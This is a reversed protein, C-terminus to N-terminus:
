ASAPKEMLFWTTDDQPFPGRHYAFGYDVLRLDSFRDLMEGAFDRKFLRDEHGRYNITVPSPNYYEAVLVYRRSHHYLADYAQPLSDPNIHILVGKTFTLDYRQDTKFELLSGHHVNVGPIERLRAAAQSNIEVGSVSADPLLQRLVKLNMGVNAGLELVSQVDRCHRLISSFFAFNAALLGSSQNRAIYEDGFQGAWHEEQPTSFAPGNAM